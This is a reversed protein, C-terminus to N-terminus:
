EPICRSDELYFLGLFIFAVFSFILEFLNGPNVFSEKGMTFISHMTIILEAFKLIAPLIFLANFTGIRNKKGKIGYTYAIYIFILYYLISFISTKISYDIYNSYDSGFENKMGLVDILGVLAQIACAAYVIISFKYKRGLLISVLMLVFLAYTIIIYSFKCYTLAMSLIIGVISYGFALVSLINYRLAKDTYQGKEGSTRDPLISCHIISIIPSMIGYIFFGIKSYGKSDAIKATFVGFGIAILFFFVSFM